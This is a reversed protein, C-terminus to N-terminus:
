RTARALFDVLAQRDAPDPVRQDPMRSGPTYAEPGHEFLAAVTEPTWVIDMAQLAPSYDYGAATAIRRGFLGHLTPGARRGDDPTLSHCLACARFVEAGRSGDDVGPAPPAGGEGRPAGTAADWRRILGDGGGTMLDPGAFALSWVPRQGPAIEAVASLDAGDRVWVRGEIAAAAVRAGDSAAAVLPREGLRAEAVRAGAGDYLRIAGDAFIVAARDGVAVLGTPPAPLDATAAPRGDRWVRLRLDGGVSALAGDPLFAAGTTKDAHADRMTAAAGDLPILGLRGDWGASVLTAGDPSLTLASVPAEHAAAIREPALGDAGWIAVQGDQGGTALRGGPLLAVATVAGAHLRLVRGAAAGDLRWLIARTDFSGSLLAGSGAALAGVPGGHGRFDQAAVGGAGLGAALVVAALGAARMGGGGGERRRRGGADQAAVGGAGLGAALVWAALGAARM